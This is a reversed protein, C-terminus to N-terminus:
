PNYQGVDPISCFHVQLPLFAKQILWILLNCLDADILLYNAPLLSMFQPELQMLLVLQAQKAQKLELQMIVKFWGM